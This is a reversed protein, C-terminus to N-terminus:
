ASKFRLLQEPYAEAAPFLVREEFRVHASLADAFALLAEATAESLREALATLQAHEALTRAVLEAEGAAALAPLLWGEEEAFHPQLEDTFRRRLTTALEALGAPDGGGALRRARQALSLATHHERSLETLAQSRRM